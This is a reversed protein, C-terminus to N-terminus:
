QPCGGRGPPSRGQRGCPDRHLRQYLPEVDALKGQQVLLIALNNLPYAVMPHDKGYANTYIDRSRQYLQEAQAYKVQAAYLNALDNLSGM